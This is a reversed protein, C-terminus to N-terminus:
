WRRWRARSGPACCPLLAVPCCPLLPQVWAVGPASGEGFLATAVTWLPQQAPALARIRTLRVGPRRLDSEVLQDLHDSGEAVVARDQVPRGLGRAWLEAWLRTGFVPWPGTEAVETVRVAQDAPAVPRESAQAHLHHVSRQRASPRGAPGAARPPM